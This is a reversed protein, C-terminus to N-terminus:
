LISESDYVRVKKWLHAANQIFTLHAPENQYKDQESKNNFTVILCYDYSSDVVERESGSKKGIHKSKVYDSHNIFHSLHQEFQRCHEAKDPQHLWFFVTHIFGQSEIIQQKSM